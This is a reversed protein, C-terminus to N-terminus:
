DRVHSAGDALRQAPTLRADRTPMARDGSKGIVYSSPLLISPDRSGSKRLFHPRSSIADSNIEGDASVYREDLVHRVAGRYHIEALDNLDRPLPRDKGDQAM